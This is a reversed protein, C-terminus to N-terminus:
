HCCNTCNTTIAYINKLTQVHNTSFSCCINKTFHLILSSGHGGFYNGSLKSTCLLERYLGSNRVNQLEEKCSWSACKWRLRSNLSVSDDVIIRNHERHYIQVRASPVIILCTFCCSLPVTFCIAQGGHKVGFPIDVLAVGSNCALIYIYFDWKQVVICFMLRPFSFFWTFNSIFTPGRGNLTLIILTM